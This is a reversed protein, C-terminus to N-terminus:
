SRPLSAVMARLTSVAEAFPKWTHLSAAYERAGERWRFILHDGMIGGRPYPRARLLLGRRGSWRATDLRRVAVDGLAEGPPGALLVVHSLRPPRNREPRGPTEVGSQLEFTEVGGPEGPYVGFAYAGPKAVYLAEPVLRPCAPRLVPSARCEALPKTPMPVLRVASVPAPESAREESSRLCGGLGLAFALALVALAAM